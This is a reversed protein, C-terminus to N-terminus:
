SSFSLLFFFVCRNLLWAFSLMRSDFYRTFMRTAVCAAIVIPGLVCDRGAHHLACIPTSLQAEASWIRHALHFTRTSQTRVKPPRKHQYSRETGEKAQTTRSRSEDGQSSPANIPASNTRSPIASTSLSLANLFHVSIERHCLGFSNLFRIIFGIPKKQKGEASCNWSRRDAFLQPYKVKSAAVACARRGHVACRLLYFLSPTLAKTM